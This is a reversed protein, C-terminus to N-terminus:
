QARPVVHGGDAETWQEGWQVVRGSASAMTAAFSPSEWGHGVVWVYGERADCTTGCYRGDCTLCRGTAPDMGPKSAAARNAKIRNRLAQTADAERLHGMLEETRETMSPRAWPNADPQHTNM